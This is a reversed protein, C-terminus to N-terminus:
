PTIPPFNQGFGGEINYNSKQPKNKVKLVAYFGYNHVPESHITKARLRLIFKANFKPVGLNAPDKSLCYFGYGNGIQIYFVNKEEYYKLLAECDIIFKTDEFNHQDEKKDALTLSNTPKSHRNPIIGKAKVYDLVGLSTYLENIEDTTRWFWSNEKSWMFMKQGYDALLDLKIELNYDKGKHTFQSDQGTGAGARKCGMSLISSTKMLNYIKDEYADGKNYPTKTQIAVPLKTKKM